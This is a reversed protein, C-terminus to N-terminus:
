RSPEMIGLRRQNRSDDMLRELRKLRTEDKKASMVFWTAIRRYGPPQATFFAWAKKDATFLKELKPPLSQPRNEFSYIGSRKRDRDEFVKLGPEAMLGTKTLEGVRRINILSWASRTTRPSFRNTYSIEDVKKRVGDIWGFCLAQDLAEQYSIGTKGSDKKYFGIWVEKATDHNKELWRRFEAASRFYTIDSV